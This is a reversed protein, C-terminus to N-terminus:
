RYILNIFLCKLIYSIERNVHVICVLQIQSLESYLHGKICSMHNVNLNHHKCVFSEVFTQRVTVFPFYNIFFGRKRLSSRYHAPVTLHTYNTMLIKIHPKFSVSCPYPYHPVHRGNCFQEDYLGSMGLSKYSAGGLHKMFKVGGEVHM